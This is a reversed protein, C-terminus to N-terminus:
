KEFGYKGILPVFRVGCIRSRYFKKGIKEGLWLVQDNYRDGVPICIKGCDSSLQDIYSQPITPGVATVLIRDYPANNIWGKTGDEILVTINRLKLLKFIKQANEALHPIREITYVKGSSGVLHGLLAAHYGSGTGIELIKMGPHLDLHECMMANMHPASITQGHDIPLPHDQYAQNQYTIPIFCHRPITSMAEAVAKSQIIGQSRLRNVMEARSDAFNM